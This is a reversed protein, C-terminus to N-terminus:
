KVRTELWEKTEQFSQMTRRPALSARELVAKGKILVFAGIAGFIVAVILPALWVAVALGVGLTLLSTLGRVLADLLVFLAVLALAGGAAVIAVGRLLTAVGERLEAKAHAIEDQLLRSTDRGLGAVLRPLSRLGPEEPPNM